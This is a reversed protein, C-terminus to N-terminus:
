YSCWSGVRWKTSKSRKNKKNKTTIKLFIVRYYTPFITIALLKALTKFETKRAFSVVLIKKQILVFKNISVVKDCLELVM